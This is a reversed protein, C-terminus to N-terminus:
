PHQALWRGIQRILAIRCNAFSHNADLLLYQQNATSNQQQLAQWFPTLVADPPIVTDRTGGILLLPKDKLRPTLCSLSLTDKCRRADEPLTNPAELRLCGYKHFANRLFDEKEELLYAVDAPAIAIAGKTKPQRSLANLAAWGGMSIGLLFVKDADIGYNVRAEETQAWDAAAIADEVVGSLTFHGESGWAGRYFPNLVVCGARRLAQAIDHNTTYGPLGHLMLVCPHTEGIRGGPLLAYGYMQQGHSVITLGKDSPFEEWQDCPRDSSLYEPFMM